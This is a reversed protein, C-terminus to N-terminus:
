SNSLEIKNPENPSEDSSLFYLIAQTDQDPWITGLVLTLENLILHLSEPAHNLGISADILALPPVTHGIAATSEDVRFAGGIVTFPHVIMLVTHACLRPFLALDTELALVVLSLFIAAPAVLPGVTAEIFTVENIANELSLTLFISM